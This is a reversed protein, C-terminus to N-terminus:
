TVFGIGIFLSSFPGRWAGAIQEQLPQDCLWDRHFPFQFAELLADVALCDLTVFGIGIFLSSFSRLRSRPELLSCWDCLWDRHFPFQFTLQVGTSWTPVQYTVFGIGIFLSSFTSSWTPM